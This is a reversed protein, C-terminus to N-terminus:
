ELCLCAAQFGSKVATELTAPYHSSLYDGALFIGQQNLAAQNPIMRNATAAITARKETIVQVALPEGVHPAIRLVEAQVKAALQDAKLSSHSESVSIVAAIEHSGNLQSRDILWQATGYALGTMVAPLRPMVAYRLYVTTIAHYQWSQEAMLIHPIQTEPLVSAVHYPAVAVVVRDFLEDNVLWQNGQQKLRGVRTQAVFHGDLAAFKELAPQVLLRGLDMRPLCFDRGLGDILVHALVRLSATQLPTNLAGLVLPQWFEHCWKESTGRQALFDAVSQDGTQVRHWRLLATLDKILQWKEPLTAQKALCLGFFINLPKPLSAAQFCVGDALIWSMPTRMFVAQEDVDIRKLLEFVAAYADILLHQGNDLFSFGDTAVSRARGGAVRGAEFLKVQVSEALQVAAALGAWGAGVVAVKM